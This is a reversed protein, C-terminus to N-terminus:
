GKRIVKQKLIRYIFVPVGIIYRKWKGKPDLFLRWLWELGIANMWKPVPAEKGAVYDFLAGVSWVVTAGIRDWNDYVWKEQYPVGMGVFLIDPKTFQIQNLIEDSTNKVFFGDYVGTIKIDPNLRQLKKSAEEAIGKEGALISISLNEHACMACFDYIWERGTIKKLNKGELFKGAWVVGIGDPYVLNMWNLIYRYREDKELLNVCYANVYSISTKKGQKARMLPFIMLEEPTVAFVEIGFLSVNKM